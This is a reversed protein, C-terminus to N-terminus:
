RNVPCGSNAIGEFVIVPITPETFALGTVQELVTKMRAGKANWLARYEESAAACEPGQAEFVLTTNQAALTNLSFLVSVVVWGSRSLLGRM